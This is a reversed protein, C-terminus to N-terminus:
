EPLARSNSRIDEDTLTPRAEDTPNGALTYHREFVKAVTEADGDVEFRMMAFTYDDVVKAALPIVVTQPFERRALEYNSLIQETTIRESSPRGKAEIPIAYHVGNRDLGVYMEDVETPSGSGGASKWHSQLSYTALGLFVSVLDNYRIRALLAQEDDRSYREIISPLADPLKTAPISADIEFLGAGRAFLKFVYEGKGTARIRWEKGDPATAQVEPPLAGRGKANYKLDYPNGGTLGLAEQHRAMDATTFAINDPSPGAAAHKKDFVACFIRKYKNWKRLEAEIEERTLGSFNKKVTKVTAKAIDFQAALHAQEEGAAVAELIKQIDDTSLSRYPRAM